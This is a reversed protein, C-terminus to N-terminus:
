HASSIMRRLVPMEIMKVGLLQIISRIYPLQEVLDEPMPPRTAKYKDYMEHRFTPGKSDLAVAAYEPGKDEFLKLLM